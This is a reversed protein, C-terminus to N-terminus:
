IVEVESLNGSTWVETVEDFMYYKSLSTGSYDTSLGCIIIKNGVHVSSAYTFSETVTETSWSGNKYTHIKNSLGTSNEGGSIYIASDGAVATAGSISEPM